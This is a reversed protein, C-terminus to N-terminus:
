SCSQDAKSPAFDESAEADLFRAFDLLSPFELDANMDGKFGIRVTRVNARRGAEIDSASDGVMYSKSLDIGLDKASALIMGPEPKRCGCREYNEHPCHRISDLIIGSKRLEREMHSHVQALDEETMLGRAIGRQNTVVVLLFGMERLLSLAKIAGSLFRFQSVKSVYSDEPLKHNIVGDRDL